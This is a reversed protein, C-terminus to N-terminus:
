SVQLRLQGETTMWRHFLASQNRECVLFLGFFHCLFKDSEYSGASQSEGTEGEDPSFWASIAGPFGMVHHPIRELMETVAQIEGRVLLGLDLRDDILSFWLDLSDMLFRHLLHFRYHLIGARLNARQEGGLLLLFEIRHLLRVFFHMLRHLIHM